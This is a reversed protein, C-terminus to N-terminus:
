FGQNVGKECGPLLWFLFTEYSSKTMHHCKCFKKNLQQNKNLQVLLNSFTNYM